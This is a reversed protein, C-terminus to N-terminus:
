LGQDLSCASYIALSLYFCYLCLTKQNMRGHMEKGKRTVRSTRPNTNTNSRLSDSVKFFCLISIYLAFSCQCFCFWSFLAGVCFGRPPHPTPKSLDQGFYKNHYKCHKLHIGITRISRSGFTKCTKYLYSTKSYSLDKIKRCWNEKDQRYFHFVLWM